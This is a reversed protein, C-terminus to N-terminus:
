RLRWLKLYYNDVSLIMDYNFFLKRKADEPLIKLKHTIEYDNYRRLTTYYKKSSKTYSIQDNLYVLHKKVQTLQNQSVSFIFKKLGYKIYVYDYNLFEVNFEKIFKLVEERDEYLTDDKLYVCPYYPNIMEAQYSMKENLECNLVIFTKKNKEHYVIYEGDYSDIKVFTKSSVNKLKFNGNYTFKDKKLLYREVELSSPQKIVLHGFKDCYILDEFPTISYKALPMKIPRLSTETSISMSSTLLKIKLIAEGKEYSSTIIAFKYIEDYLSFCNHIKFDTFFEKTEITPM